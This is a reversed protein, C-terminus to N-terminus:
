TAYFFKRKGLIGSLALMVLAVAGAIGAWFIPPADQQEVAVAVLAWAVTLAYIGDNRLGLYIGLSILVLVLATAIYIATQPAFSVGLQDLALATSIVTAASIWGLYISPAFYTWGYQPDGVERVHARLALHAGILAVLHWLLDVFGWLQNSGLSIPVFAISALGAVTLFRYARRLPVTDRDVKLQLASFILMGTFIVGWISFGYGAADVRTDVDDTFRDQSVDLLIPLYNVVPVLIFTALLAYRWNRTAPSVPM